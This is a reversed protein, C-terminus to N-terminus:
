PTKRRAAAFGGEEELAGLPFVVHVPIHDDIETKNALQFRRDLRFLTGWSSAAQFLTKPLGLFDITSTSRGRFWTTRESNQFTNTALMGAGDLFERFLQGAGNELHELTEKGNKIASSNECRALREYEGRKAGM